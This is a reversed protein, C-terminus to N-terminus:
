SKPKSSVSVIKGSVELIHAIIGKLSELIGLYIPSSKPTCVGQILREEHEESYGNAIKFMSRVQEGIQQALLKNQTLILDPLKELLDMAEQFVDNIEKVGRDSFLIHEQVMSKLRDVIGEMNYSMRDLSSAMSLYPKAWEKGKEYPSSKLILFHALESSNKRIEKKIEEVGKLSEEGHKRFGQFSLELMKILSQCVRIMKEGVEKDM